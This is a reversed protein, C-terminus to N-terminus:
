YLQQMYVFCIFSAAVIFLPSSLSLSLPSSYLSPPTFFFVLRATGSRPSPTFPLTLSLLLPTNCRPPTHATHPRTAAHWLCRPRRRSSLRPIAASGVLVTLASDLRPIPSPAVPTIRIRRYVNFLTNVSCMCCQDNHVATRM